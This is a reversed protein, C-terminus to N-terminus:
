MMLTSNLKESRCKLRGNEHFYEHHRRSRRRVKNGQKDLYDSITNKMETNEYENSNPITVKATPEQMEPVDILIPASQAVGPPPPLDSILAKLYEVQYVSVHMIEENGIQVPVWGKLKENSM